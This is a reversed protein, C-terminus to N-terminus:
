CYDNKWGERDYEAHTLVRKILITQLKYEIKVILRYKNGSINFGACRGFADAHAYVAKVDAINRWRAKRAVRYWSELSSEATKHTSAFEKLRKRTIVHV